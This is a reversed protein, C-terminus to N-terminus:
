SANKSSRGAGPSGGAAIKPFDLFIADAEQSGTESRLFVQRALLHNPSPGESNQLEAVLIQLSTKSWSDERELPGLEEAFKNPQTASSDPRLVAIRYIGQDEPM